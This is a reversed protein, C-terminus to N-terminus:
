VVMRELPALSSLMEEREREREGRWGEEEEESTSATRGGTLLQVSFRERERVSRCRSGRRRSERSEILGRLMDAAASGKPEAPPPIWIPQSVSPPLDLLRPDITQMIIDGTTDREIYPNPEQTEEEHIPALPSQALNQKRRQIGRQLTRWLDLEQDDENEDEDVNETVSMSDCTDEIESQEVTGMSIPAEVDEIKVASEMVVEEEEVPSHIGARRGWRCESPYDCNRWCDKKVLMGESKEEVVGNRGTGGGLVLKRQM